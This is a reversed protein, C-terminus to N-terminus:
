LFLNMGYFEDVLDDYSLECPCRHANRPQRSRIGHPPYRGGVIEEFESWSEYSLSGLNRLQGPEIGRCIMHRLSLGLIM